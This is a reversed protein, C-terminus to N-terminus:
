IGISFVKVSEERVFNQALFKRVEVPMALSVIYEDLKRKTNLLLNRQSEVYKM